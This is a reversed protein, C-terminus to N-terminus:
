ALSFLNNVHIEAHFDFMHLRGHTLCIYVLRMSLLCALTGAKRRSFGGRKMCSRHQALNTALADARRRLLVRSFMSFVALILVLSTQSSRVTVSQSLVRPKSHARARSCFLLPSLSLALALALTLALALALALALPFLARARARASSNPLLSPSPSLSLALSRSLSLALSCSRSLSASFAHFLLNEIVPIGHSALALALALALAPALHPLPCLARKSSCGLVYYGMQPAQVQTTRSSSVASGHHCMPRRRYRAVGCSQDRFFVSIASKSLTHIM